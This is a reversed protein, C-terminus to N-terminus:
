FGGAQPIFRVASPLADCITEIRFIPLPNARGNKAQQQQQQQLQQSRLWQLLPCEIAPDDIRSLLMAYQAPGTSVVSSLPQGDASASGVADANATLATSPARVLQGTVNDFYLSSSTNVLRHHVAAIEGAAALEVASEIVCLMEGSSDRLRM